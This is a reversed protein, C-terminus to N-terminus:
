LGVACIGAHRLHRAARPFFPFIVAPLILILSFAFLFLVGLIKTYGESLEGGKKLFEISKNIFDFIM